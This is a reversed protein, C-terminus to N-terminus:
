SPAIYFDEPRIVKVRIDGFETAYMKTLMGYSEMRYPAVWRHVVYPAGSPLGFDRLLTPVLAVAPVAALAKIFGRRKM